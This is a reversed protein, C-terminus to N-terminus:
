NGDESKQQKETAEFEIGRKQLIIYAGANKKIKARLVATSISFLHQNLHIIFM